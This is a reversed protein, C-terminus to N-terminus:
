SQALKQSVRRYKLLHLAARTQGRRMYLYLLTRLAGNSGPVLQLAQHLAKEAEVYEGKAMRAIAVNVCLACRSKANAIASDGSEETMTTTGASSSPSAGASEASAGGGGAKSKSVGGAGRGNKEKAASAALAKASRAAIEIAKQSHVVGEDVKGTALLVEACYTHALVRMDDEDDGREDLISLLGTATRFASSADCAALQLYAKVLMARQLLKADGPLSDAGCAEARKEILRIANDASAIGCHITLSEHSADLVRKSHAAIEEPSQPFSVLAGSGSVDLHLRRVAGEGAVHSVLRRAAVANVDEKASVGGGLNPLRSEAGPQQGAVTKAYAAMACEAMRYWLIPRNFLALSAEEFCSFALGPKGCQLMVTGLNLLIEPCHVDGKPSARCEGLGRALNMTACRKKKLRYHVCAMNNLYVDKRMGAKSCATLLKVSKKYNGRLYELNAKLCLATTNASHVAFEDADDGDVASKAAFAGGEPAEEVPLNIRLGFRRNTDGDAGKDLVDRLERQFIELASKLEKKSHKVECQLLRLKAKYLHLRYRFEIADNSTQLKGMAEKRAVSSSTDDDGDDGSVGGKLLGNFMHPAELYKFIADCKALIRAMDAKPLGWSVRTYVDLLSFCVCLAVSEELEDRHSFLVGLVRVATTLQKMHVLVVGMNYLLLSLSHRASEADEDTVSSAGFHASSGSPFPSTRDISMGAANAIGVDDNGGSSVYADLLSRLLDRAAVFKKSAFQALAMNHRTKAQVLTKGEGADSSELQSDIAKLSDLCQAYRGSKWAELADAALLSVGSSVADADGGDKGATSAETSGSTKSTEDVM